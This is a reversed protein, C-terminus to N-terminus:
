SRMVRPQAKPAGAEAPVPEEVRRGTAADFLHEAEPEWGLRVVDGPAVRSRGPVRVSVVADGVRCGVIADAGLYEIGTVRAPVGAVEELAIEEPRLGLALGEGRGAFLAPGDSGAIVAGDPGDALPLINMPPTGIFRAAFLTAPREYLEAPPCDQEIRGQRMLIV